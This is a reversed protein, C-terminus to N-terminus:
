LECARCVCPVCVACAFSSFRRNYEMQVALESSVSASSLWKCSVPYWVKKRKGEREEVKTVQM